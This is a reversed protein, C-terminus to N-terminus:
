LGRPMAAGIGVEPRTLLPKEACTARLTPTLTDSEREDLNTFPFAIGEGWGEECSM